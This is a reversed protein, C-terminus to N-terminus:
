GKLVFLSRLLVDRARTGRVQAMLRDKRSESAFYRRWSVAIAEAMPVSSYMREKMMELRATLLATGWRTERVRSRRAAWAASCTWSLSDKGSDQILM